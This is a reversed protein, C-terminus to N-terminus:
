FSIDTIPKLMCVQILQTSLHIKSRAVLAQPKFTLTIKISISLLLQEEGLAHFDKVESETSAM